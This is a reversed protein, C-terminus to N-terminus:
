ISSSVATVPSLDDNQGQYLSVAGTSEITVGPAIAEGTIVSFEKKSKGKYHLRAIIEQGIYCGKEFDVGGVKDLGIHQPIFALLNQEFIWPMRSTAEKGLWFSETITEQSPAKNSIIWSRGDETDLQWGNDTLTVSQSNALTNSIGYVTRDTVQSLTVKAFLVYKKLVSMTHSLVDKPMLLVFGAEVRFIMMVAHLRGKRDCYGALRWKGEELRKFDITLQGQLFTEANEGTIHVVGFKALEHHTTM